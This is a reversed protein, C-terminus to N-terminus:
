LVPYAHFSDKDQPLLLVRVDFSRNAWVPFLGPPPFLTLSPFGFASIMSRTTASIVPSRGMPPLDDILIPVHWLRCSGSPRNVLSSHHFASQSKGHWPSGPCPGRLWHLLFLWAVPPEAIGLFICPFCRPSRASSTHFTPCGPLDSCFTDFMRHGEKTLSPTILRLLGGAVFPM